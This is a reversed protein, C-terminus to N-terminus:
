GRENKKGGMDFIKRLIKIVEEGTPFAIFVGERGDFNENIEPAEPSFNKRGLEYMFEVINPYIEVVPQYAIGLSKFTNQLLYINDLGLKLNELIIIADESSIANMANIFFIKANQSLLTVSRIDDNGLKRKGINIIKNRAEEAILIGKECLEKITRKNM